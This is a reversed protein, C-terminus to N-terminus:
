KSIPSHPFSQASATAERLFILVKGTILHLIRMLLWNRCINHRSYTFLCALANVHIPNRLAEAILAEEAATLNLNEVSTQFEKIKPNAIFPTSAPPMAIDDSVSELAIADESQETKGSLDAEEAPLLSFEFAFCNYVSSNNGDIEVSSLLNSNSGTSAGSDCYIARLLEIIKNHIEVFYFVLIEM